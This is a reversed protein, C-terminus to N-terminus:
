YPKSNEWCYINSGARHVSYKLVPPGAREEQGHQHQFQWCSAPSPPALLVFCELDDATYSALLLMASALQRSQYRLQCVLMSCAVAVYM